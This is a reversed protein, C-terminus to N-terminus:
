AVEIFGQLQPQNHEAGGVHVTLNNTVKIDVKGHTHGALVTFSHTPFAKSADLLMDGLMKNTYWPMASDDGRKGEHVHAEAFPPYHTLVIINKHYRVASKIGNHVHQVGEHALKRALSVITAKNGNVQKFDHIANWDMMGFTSNQWDGLHADYWCDHGVIATAPTLAIYPMVPMYRLFGSVNTLERMAKRVGDIDAGYYDHNGLVFYIPRQVVREIASLHYVLQSAVSIDGTLFIGTPQQQILGEAFAILRKNDNKLFDLHCDTAWAYKTM